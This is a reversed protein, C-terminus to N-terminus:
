SSETMKEAPTFCKPEGFVRCLFAQEGARIKQFIELQMPLLSASFIKGVKCEKPAKAGEIEQQRFKIRRGLARQRMKIRKAQVFNFIPVKRVPLMGVFQRELKWLEETFCGLCRDGYSTENRQCVLCIM